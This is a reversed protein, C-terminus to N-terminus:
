EIVYVVKMGDRLQSPMIYSIASPDSTVYNVLEGNSQFQVSGRKRGSFRLRSWYTNIRSLSMGVLQKYFMEKVENDGKLEIPVAAEGSPFANYRGMFIDIVESRTMRDTANNQNVVVLIRSADAQAAISFALLIILPIAVLRSM